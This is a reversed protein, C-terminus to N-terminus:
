GPFGARAVKRARQSRRNHNARSSKNADKRQRAVQTDRESALGAVNGGPTGRGGGGRGQGRRHQRGRNGGVADSTTADVGIDESEKAARWATPGLETQQGRFTACKAELKAQRRPDRGLILAWGEIAEDAMGTESRLSIRAKGRRTAADRAFVEPSSKWTLYLTEENGLEEFETDQTSDIAGGVDDIDYTDDREDSGSDFAALASYIAAKNQASSPELKTEMRGVHLRSAAVELNDLEDNDFINKRAPLRM